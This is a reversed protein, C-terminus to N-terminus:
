EGELKEVREKIDTGLEIEIASKLAQLINNAVDAPIEGNAMAKTIKSVKDTYTDDPDFEFKSPEYTPRYITDWLKKQRNRLWLSISATNPSVHKTTTVRKLLAGEAGETEQVEIYDYGTASKHLSDVVGMDSELKGVKISESFSPFEKKWLYLTSPVVEFFDAIQEDTAGLLSLKRAKEDYEPRYKTPRGLDSM